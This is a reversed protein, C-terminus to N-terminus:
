ISCGILSGYAGACQSRARAGHACTSDLDACGVQIKAEPLTIKLKVREGFVLRVCVTM